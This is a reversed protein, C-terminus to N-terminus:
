VSPPTPQQGGKLINKILLKIDQIPITFGIINDYPVDPDTSVTLNHASLGQSLQNQLKQTMATKTDGEVTQPLIFQVKIGEKTPNKNVSVKLKSQM